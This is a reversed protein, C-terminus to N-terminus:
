PNDERKIIDKESPFFLLGKAQLINQVSRIDEASLKELGISAAVSSNDKKYLLLKKSKFVVSRVVTFGGLEKLEIYQSKHRNFDPWEIYRKHITLVPITIKQLFMIATMFATLLVGVIAARWPFSAANHLYMSLSFFAFLGWFPVLTYWAVHYFAARPQNYFALGRNPLQKM